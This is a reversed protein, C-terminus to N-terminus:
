EDNETTVLEEPREGLQVLRRDLIEKVSLIERCLTDNEAETLLLDTNPAVSFNLTDMLEGFRNFANRAALSDPANLISDKYAQALQLTGNYLADSDDPAAEAAPKACSQGMLIALSFILVGSVKLKM